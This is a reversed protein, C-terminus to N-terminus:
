AENEIEKEALNTFYEGALASFLGAFRIHNQVSPNIFMALASDALASNDSIQSLAQVVYSRDTMMNDVARQVREQQAEEREGQEDYSLWNDYALKM